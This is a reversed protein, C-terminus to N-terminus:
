YTTDASAVFTLNTDCGAIGQYDGQTTLVFVNIPAFYNSGDTTLRVATDEGLTLTYWVNNPVGYCGGPGDPM